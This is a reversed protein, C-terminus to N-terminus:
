ESMDKDDAVFTHVAKTKMEFLAFISPFHM